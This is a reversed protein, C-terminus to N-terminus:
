SEGKGLMPDHKRSLSLNTAAQGDANQRSFRIAEMEERIGGGKQNYAKLFSGKAKTKTLNWSTIYTSTHTWPAMKVWFNGSWIFKFSFQLVHKKKSGSGSSRQVGTVQWLKPHQLSGCMVALTQTLSTINQYPKTNVMLARPSSHVKWVRTDQQVERFITVKSRPGPILRWLM